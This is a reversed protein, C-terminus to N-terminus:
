VGNYFQGNGRLGRTAWRLAGMMTQPTPKGLYPMDDRLRRRAEWYADTTGYLAEIHGLEDMGAAGRRAAEAPDPLTLYHRIWYNGECGARWEEMTRYLGSHGCGYIAEDLHTETAANGRPMRPERGPFPGLLARPLTMHPARGAARLDRLAGAYAQVNDLLELRNLALERRRYYGRALNALIREIVAKGEAPQGTNAIQWAPENNWFTLAIIAIDCDPNDVACKTLLEAMDNRAFMLWTDQPQTALWTQLERGWDREGDPIDQEYFIPIASHEAM